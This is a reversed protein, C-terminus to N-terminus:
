GDGDPEETRVKNDWAPLVVTFKSGEGTLSEVEIRGGIEEIITRALYLGLGVGPPDASDGAADADRETANVEPARGRYFKEFIHPLDDALIGRGTDSVSLMVEGGAATASLTILGGDPTYKFANQILSSYVRRLAGRDAMVEPLRDGLQVRLQHGRVEANRRETEGCSRVVETVDVRSLAINFTGAEIRSLDLLNLVLDIQRDCESMITELFERRDAENTKDRLLVRTLTKITTLPTRMEHSVGSVFDSKLKDLETLRAEREEIEAAMSNFSTRLDELEGSTQFTARASSDGSGFRRAAISLQRVPGAISRAILVAAVMALILGAISFVLNLNFQNRAPSHLSESPIGVMAICGTEGARALGYIRPTGDITSTLEVVATAQNGLSAFLRSGSMDKGLYTEATTNRYLVIRKQPGFVAFVDQDSLKVRKLFADSTTKVDIQAVLAFDNSLPVSIMLVGSAPGGSWDTDIAWEREQLQRLLILAIGPPLSPASEPQATLTEGTANIVRLGLWHSRTEVTTRLTNSFAPDDVRHGEYQEAITALPERQAEIWQEFAAGSIEAQNEISEDLQKRSAGWTAWIGALGLAAVPVAVGAVLVLLRIRIGGRV